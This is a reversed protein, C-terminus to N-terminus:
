LLRLRLSPVAPAPSEAPSRRDFDFRLSRPPHETPYLHLLVCLHARAPDCDPDILREVEFCIVWDDGICELSRLRVQDNSRFDGEPVLALLCDTLMGVPAAEVAATSAIAGLAAGLDPAPWLRVGAAVVGPDGEDLPLVLAQCEIAASGARRWLSPITPIM